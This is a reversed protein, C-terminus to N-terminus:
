EKVHLLFCNLICLCIYWIKIYIKIKVKVLVKLTITAFLKIEQGSKRKKICFYWNEELFVLLFYITAKLSFSSGLGLYQTNLHHNTPHHSGDRRRPTIWFSSNVPTPGANSYSNPTQRLWFLWVKVGLSM